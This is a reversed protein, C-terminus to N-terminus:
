FGRFISILYIFFSIIFNVVVAILLRKNKKKASYLETDLISYNKNILAFLNERDTKLKSFSGNNKIESVAILSKLESLDLETKAKIKDVYDRLNAIKESQIIDIDARLNEADIRFQEREKNDWNAM